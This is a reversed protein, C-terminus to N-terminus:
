KNPSECLLVWAEEGMSTSELIYLKGSQGIGLTSNKAPHIGLSIIRDM